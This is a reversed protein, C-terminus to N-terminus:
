AEDAPREQPERAARMAILPSMASSQSTGASTIGFATASSRKRGAVGRPARRREPEGGDARDDRVEAEDVRVLAKALEDEGGRRERVLSAEVRREEDDAAADAAGREEAAREAPRKM